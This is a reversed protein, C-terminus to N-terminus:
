KTFDVFRFIGNAPRNSCPAVSWYDSATQWYAISAIPHNINSQHPKNGRQRDNFLAHTDISTNFVINSPTYSTPTHIPSATHDIQNNITSQRSQTTTHKQLRIRNIRMSRPLTTLEQSITAIRKRIHNHSRISSRQRFKPTIVITIWTTIDISDILTTATYDCHLRM